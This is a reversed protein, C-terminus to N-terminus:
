SAVELPIRPTPFEKIAWLADPIDGQMGDRRGSAQKVYVKAGDLMFASVTSGIWDIECPRYGPGSEGGIIAWEAQWGRNDIPGLLPEASVFHIEAPIAAALPAREDFREQDEASFGIWVNAPPAGNLWRRIMDLTDAAPGTTVGGSAEAARQMLRWWNEPRKTLLLYDLNPTRRITDLMRLRVHDMTMPRYGNVPMKIWDFPDADAAYMPSGDVASMIHPWDELWDGLSLSFVRRREGAERAARDWAFPQAWYSEVAVVRKGTPGWVGLVAPNRKSQTDAYCRACGPSVKTCGRWFNATHDTWSIGTEKGM